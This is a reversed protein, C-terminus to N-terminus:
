YVTTQNYVNEFCVKELKCILLNILALDNIRECKRIKVLNAALENRIFKM